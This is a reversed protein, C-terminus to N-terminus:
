INPLNNGEYRGGKTNYEFYIKCPHQLLIAKKGTNQSLDM